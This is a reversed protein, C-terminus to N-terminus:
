ELPSKTRQIITQEVPWVKGTFGIYKISLKTYKKLENVVQELFELRYDTLSHLPTSKLRQGAHQSEFFLNFSKDYIDNSITIGYRTHCMRKFLPEIRSYILEAEKAPTM